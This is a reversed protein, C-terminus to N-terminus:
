LYYCLRLYVGVDYQDNNLREHVINLGALVLVLQQM